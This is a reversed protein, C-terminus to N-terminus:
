LLGIDNVQEIGTVGGGHFLLVHGKRAVLEAVEASLHASFWDLLVIISEQPCAAPELAWDLFQLVDETRYSGREQFQLLLWPPVMMGKRIRSGSDAKFLVAMKPPTLGGTTADFPRPWSQVTTMVTYRQRTGHHDERAGVKRAGKRSLQPKLGANNFWSPKQDFSIWRMPVDGGFCLCWLRRLRFINLLMTRVRAVAAALSVKFRVTTARMCLGYEARWRSLFHKDIKPMASAPHGQELLRDRIVRAQSLLLASDARSRLEEVEDVFWQLLEYWLCAMKRPRPKASQRRCRQRANPTVGGSGAPTYAGANSHTRWEEWCRRLRVGLAASFRLNFCEEAIAGWRKRGVGPNSQLFANIHGGIELRQAISLKANRGGTHVLSKRFDPPTADQIVYLCM